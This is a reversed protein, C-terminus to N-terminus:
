KTVVYRFSAWEPGLSPDDLVAVVRGGATRLLDEVEAREVAYMQMIPKKGQRIGRNVADYARVVGAPGHERLSRKALALRSSSAPPPTRSPLQFVLAGGPRTVRVLERLYGTSYTPEIHQLVINSYALDFLEDGLCRLDRRANVIYEIGPADRALQRAQAIMSPAIDVGVVSAYHESLALTCRGVGCGFDLARERGASRNASGTDALGLGQLLEIVSDIEAVGTALFKDLDRGGKFEDQTLVAWLPDSNGFSDWHRRLARM